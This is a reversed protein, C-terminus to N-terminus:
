AAPDSDDSRRSRPRIVPKPSRSSVLRLHQRRRVIRPRM